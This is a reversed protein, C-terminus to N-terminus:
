VPYLHVVERQIEPSNNAPKALTVSVGGAPAADHTCEVMDLMM